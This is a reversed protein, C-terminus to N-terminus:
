KSGDSVPQKPLAELFGSVETAFREPMEDQPAHGCPDFTVLRSGAILANFRRGVALPAVAITTLDAWLWGGELRLEHVHGDTGTYIVASIGDSRVYGFPDSAADPSGTIATLDAWRWSEQWSGSQHLLELYLAHIDALFSIAMLKQLLVCPWMM